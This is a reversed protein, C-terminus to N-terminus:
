IFINEICSTYTIIKNKNYFLINNQLDLINLYFKM